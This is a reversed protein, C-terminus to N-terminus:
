ALGQESLQQDLTDDEKDEEFFRKVDDYTLIEDPDETCIFRLGEDTDWVEFDYISHVGTSVGGHSPFEGDTLRGDAIAEELERVTIKSM